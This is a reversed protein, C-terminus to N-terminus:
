ASARATLHERPAPSNADPMAVDISRDIPGYSKPFPSVTDTLAIDISRDIPGYTKPFPSSTDSSGAPVMRDIPGYTQPFPSDMGAFANLSGISLLGGAIAAFALKKMVTEKPLPTSLYAGSRRSLSGSAGATLMAALAAAAPAIPKMVFM